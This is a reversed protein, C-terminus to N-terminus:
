QIIREYGQKYYYRMIEVGYPQFVEALWRTGTTFSLLKAAEGRREAISYEHDPRERYFTSIGRNRAHRKHKATRHECGALTVKRAGMVVAAEIASHLVTRLHLYDCTRGGMISKALREFEEKGTAPM